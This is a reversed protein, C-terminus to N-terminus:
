QNNLEEIGKVLKNIREESFIQPYAQLRYLISLRNALTFAFRSEKNKNSENIHEIIDDLFSPDINEISELLGIMNGTHLYVLLRIFSDKNIEKEKIIDEFQEIMLSIKKNIKEDDIAWDEFQEMAEIAENTSNKAGDFLDKSIRM